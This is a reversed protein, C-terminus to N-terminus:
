RPEFVMMEVNRQDRTIVLGSQDRLHELFDNKVDKTGDAQFEFEGKQIKAGETSEVHFEFEGQLNTENVVPRDLESELEYCFDDVTGDITIGMIAEIRVLKPGEHAEGPGDVGGILIGSSRMGGMGEDPRPKLTPPKRNPMTTVVYVDVLRNERRSTVHFYDRIGQQFRDKMKEREEHEPLVLSFDYRKGDDLSAPLDIRIPNIDDLESIIEKVTFGQLAWFDDGSSNSHGQIQSPVVHLAYSPPFHPRHDVPRPMMRPEANLLVQRNKVFAEMTAKSQPTTTIRGELAANLLNEDSMAGSYFGLIKRDPGIIVDVPMELGYAKGTEGQPDHFVWGKVAHQSLWPLLTSSREGTVWVFQVPKGAFKDVLSNWQNVIQLNDSTDPFFVLLTLQGSLNSQSWSAAVPANLMDTFTIDPATDGAKLHATVPGYLGSQGFASIVGFALLPLLGRVLM